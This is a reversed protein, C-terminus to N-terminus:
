TKYRCSPTDLLSPSPCHSRGEWPISPAGGSRQKTRLGEGAGGLKEEPSHPPHVTLQLLLLFFLFVQRGWGQCTLLLQTSTTPTPLHLNRLLLATMLKGWFPDSAQKQLFSPLPERHGTLWSFAILQQTGPATGLWRGRHSPSFCDLSSRSSPLLKNFGM